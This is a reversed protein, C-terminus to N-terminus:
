KIDAQRLGTRSSVVYGILHTKTLYDQIMALHLPNPSDSGQCDAIEIHSEFQEHQIELSLDKLFVALSENGVFERHKEFDADRYELLTTDLTLLTSVRDYGNLYSSLVVSQTTRTENTILQDAGLTELAKKLAARAEKQRIEFRQGETPKKLYPFLVLAQDIEDNIEEWSKFNLRATLQNGTRIKTVISTIVGAGRKLYDGGFLANTLTSKGSKIAGVVAVRITEEVMQKRISTCTKEWAAFANETVHPLFKLESLLELLNQNTKKLEEKISRYSDMPKVIEVM